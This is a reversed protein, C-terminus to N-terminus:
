AVPTKIIPIGQLGEEMLNVFAEQNGQRYYELAFQWYLERTSEEDRLITIIENEDDPLQDVQVELVEDNDKLPIDIHRPEQSEM